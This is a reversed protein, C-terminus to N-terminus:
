IIHMILKCTNKKEAYRVQAIHMSSSVYNVHINHLESANKFGGQMYTIHTHLQAHMVPHRGGGRGRRTAFVRLFCKFSSIAGRRGVPIHSRYLWVMCKASRSWHSGGLRFSSIRDDSFVLMIAFNVSVHKLVKISVHKICTHVESGACQLKMNSDKCAHFHSHLFVHM